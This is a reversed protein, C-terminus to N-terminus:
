SRGRSSAFGALRMTLARRRSGVVRAGTSALVLRDVMAPEALALALAIRGGMSIGLVAAHPLGVARMLGATDAAMQEISYPEDPKDTRGAGRNYFALVRYQRALGDILPEIQSIDTGLGCIVVLPEADAADHWEYYMSLDAVTVTPMQETNGIGRGTHADDIDISPM